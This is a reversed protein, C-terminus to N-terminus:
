GCFYGRWVELLQVLAVLYTAVFTVVSAAIVRIDDGYRAGYSYPWLRSLGAKVLAFAGLALPLALAWSTYMAINTQGDTLICNMPM